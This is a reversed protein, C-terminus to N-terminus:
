VPFIVTAPSGLFFEPPNIKAEYNVEPDYDVIGETFHDGWTPTTAIIDYVAVSLFALGSLDGQEAALTPTLSEGRMM